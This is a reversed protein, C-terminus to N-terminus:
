GKKVYIRKGNQDTYWTSWSLSYKGRRKGRRGQAMKKQHEQSVTHTKWWEAKYKQMHKRIHEGHPLYILEFYPRNWYMGLRILDKKLLALEGDLTLELRHHIDWGKFGDALAKEYNEILHQEGKRFFTQTSM